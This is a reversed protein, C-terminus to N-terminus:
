PLSKKVNAIRYLAEQHGHQELAKVNSKLYEVVDNYKDHEHCILAIDHGACLTDLTMEPLSRKGSVAGMSLDDCILIGEFGVDRALRAILPEFTAIKDSIATMIVHTTMIMQAGAGIAGRFATLDSAAVKELELCSLATERHPDNIASGLGPFHKACCIIGRKTLCEIFVRAYEIVEDPFSSYVRGVLAGNLPSYELDVVPAFNVNIGLQIFMEAVMDLDDRLKFLNNKYAAPKDLFPLLSKFRRVRGGEYDIAVFPKIDCSDNIDKILRYIQDLDNGNHDFLIVGGIRNESIFSKLSESLHPKDIGIILRQGITM